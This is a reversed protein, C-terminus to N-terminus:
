LMMCVQKCGYTHKLTKCDRRLLKTEVIMCPYVPRTVPDMCEKLGLRLDM